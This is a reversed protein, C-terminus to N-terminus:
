LGITDSSSPMRRPTLSARYRPAMAPCGCSYLPLASIRFDPTGPLFTLHNHIPLSPVTNIPGSFLVNQWYIMSQFITICIVLSVVGILDPISMDTLKGIWM